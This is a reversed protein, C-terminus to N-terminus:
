PIFIMDGNQIQINQELHKGQSVENYNFYFKKTGRLVYIKKLNAQFDALGGATALAEMVTIPETLPQPGPRAAGEGMIYYKKSNIKAIDISVDPDTIYDSIKATILVRRLDDCTLGDSKVEGVLPLSIMGDPRVDYLGTLNQNNWVKIALVDLSGIVYSTTNSKSNTAKPHNTRM